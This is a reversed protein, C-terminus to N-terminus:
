PAEGTGGLNIISLERELDAHGPNAKLGQDLVTRARDRQNQGVYSNALNIYAQILSQDLAIARNYSDNALSLQKNDRYVNGLLNNLLAQDAPNTAQRIASQYQSIATPYDRRNYAAQAQDRASTFTTPTIIPSATPAAPSTETVASLPPAVILTPSVGSIPAAHRGLSALSYIGLVSAVAFFCVAIWLSVNKRSRGGRRTM